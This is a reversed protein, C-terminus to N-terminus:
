RGLNLKLNVLGDAPEPTSKTVSSTKSTFTM